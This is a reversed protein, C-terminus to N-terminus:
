QGARPAELEVAGIRDFTAMFRDGPAIPVAATWAGALVTMGAPLAKGREHLKRVFWAVAAAPHEMVAAGAATAVLVGNKEFVCGTVRLDSPPEVPNGLVFGAASSNDATVDPLTFRYGSFRSDLIDVAPAVAETAAIVQATTVDAGELEAGMIFAVEPEARPQIFDGVQIEGELRMVDTLWGYLPESVKMQKQKAQSTLGLKAASVVAGGELHHAMVEEQIEYGSDVTLDPHSKTLPPIATKSVIAEWIRDALRQTEM